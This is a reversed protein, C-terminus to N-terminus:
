AEEGGATLFAKASMAIRRDPRGVAEANKHKYPMLDLLHRIIELRARRKDNGRVVTWPAGEFDTKRLMQDFAASYASWKEVARQDIESVKWRHLPDKWRKHLRQMQAERGITLFFKVIRAGDRALMAEFDPADRLFRDTQEKTCFGFVPEVGARNYWSRDFIAIEGASPLYEAYRQFYWQGAEESTPKPLAVVKASRPNLHATMRQIAGGKGAADRGEFVIVIREGERKTWNLLKVLEIQLTLLESEYQKCPLKRDYPFGGSGLARMKIRDPLRAMDIRFEGDDREAM